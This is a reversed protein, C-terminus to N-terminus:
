ESGKRGAVIFGNARLWRLRGEVPGSREENFLLEREIRFGARRLFGELERLRFIHIYLRSLGLYGVMWKDGFDHGPLVSGLLSAVLWSRNSPWFLNHWLNHAHVVLLGGPVLVRRWEELAARRLRKGRLIGITSFMCVAADFSRDELGDLRCIDARVLRASYGHRDLKKATQGLMWPSLDVGTVECGKGALHVVHRGTGCGLDLVRCPSPVVEDLFATDAEFLKNGKHFADYDRALRADRTYEAVSPDHGDAVRPPPGQAEGQKDSLAPCGHVTM